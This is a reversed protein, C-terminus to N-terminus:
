FEERDVFPVGTLDACRQGYRRAREYLGAGTFNALNMNLNFGTAGDRSTKEALNVAFSPINSNRGSSYRVITIREFRALAVEEEWRFWLWQGRKIVTKNDLDIFRSVKGFLTWIGLLLLVTGFVTLIASGGQYGHISFVLGFAIPFIAIIKPALNRCPQYIRNEELGNISFAEPDLPVLPFIRKVARNGIILPIGAFLFIDQLFDESNGSFAIHIALPVVLLSLLLNALSRKSETTM